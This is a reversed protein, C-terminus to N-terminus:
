IFYKYKRIKEIVLKPSNKPRKSIIEAEDNLHFPQPDYKSAFEIVEERTVEYTGFEASQGVEFDEFYQPM